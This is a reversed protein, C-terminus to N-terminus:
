KIHRKYGHFEKELKDEDKGNIENKKKKLMDRMTDADNEPVDMIVVAKTRDGNYIYRAGSILAEMDKDVQPVFAGKVAKVDVVASIQVTKGSGASGIPVVTPVGVVAVAFSSLVLFLIAIPYKKM